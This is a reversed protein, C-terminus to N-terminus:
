FHASQISILHIKFIIEFEFSSEIYVFHTRTWNGIESSVHADSLTNGDLLTIMTNGWEGSYILKDCRSNPGRAMTFLSSTSWITPLMFSAGRDETQMDPDM